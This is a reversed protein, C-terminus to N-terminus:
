CPRWGPGGARSAHQRRQQVARPVDSDASRPVHQTSDVDNHTSATGRELTHGIKDILDIIGFCHSSASAVSLAVGELEQAQEGGEGLPPLASACRM